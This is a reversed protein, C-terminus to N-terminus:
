TYLWGQSDFGIDMATLFASRGLLDAVGRAAQVQALRVPNGEIKVDINRYIGVTMTTGGATRASTSRVKNSSSYGGAFLWGEDILMHDAGSDVVCLIKQNPKANIGILLVESYPRNRKGGPQVPWSYDGIFSIQRTM